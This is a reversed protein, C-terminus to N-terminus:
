LVWRLNALEHGPWHKVAQVFVLVVWSVLGPFPKMLSFGDVSERLSALRTKVRPSREYLQEKARSLMHNEWRSVERRRSIVAAGVVLLKQQLLQEARMHLHQRLSVVSQTFNHLDCLLEGRPPDPLHM